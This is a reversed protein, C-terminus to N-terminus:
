EFRIRANFHGQASSINVDEEVGAAPLRVFGNGGSTTPQTRHVTVSGECYLMVGRYDALVEISSAMLDTITNAQRAEIKESIYACETVNPAPALPPSILDAGLSLVTFKM